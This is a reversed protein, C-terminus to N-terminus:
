RVRLRLACLDARGAGVATHISDVNPLSAGPMAPLRAENRVVDTLHMAWYPDLRVASKWSTQGGLVRVLDCGLSKMARAVAVGEALGMGGPAWDAVTVSVFLPKNAPWASRVEELIKLPFRLRNALPGGYGDRRRNTLPSIFGGLLYGAGMHLGLAAFGAREARKTAQLFDRCVEAMNGETMENPRVGSRAYAVPSAALLPWGKRRLPRDSGLHRPETAARAGAHGLHLAVPAASAKAVRENIASWAREQADDYLGASGSTIRGGPSPSVVDTVALGAGSVAAREIWELTQPGPRGELSRDDPPAVAVVRNALTLDRLGMPNFAPPPAVEHPGDSSLRDIRAVFAPDRLRLNDYDVRGSRTLLHFAFQEPAMHVYRHTNEFYTQSQRAAEQFIAVRPKRELEYDAFAGELSDSTELAQSLAIADEMALKTGSGISFHATHVADGLFVINDAHWRSCRLTPFTLWKSGNSMLSRGKLDDGFIAECRAISELEDSEDLGAAAWTEPSCEVIFTSTTGDFPYAHAQFMGHETSRFAFTFSDFTRDTGFWIYRSRGERVSPRLSAAFRDRFVSHVGDAAVVLDFEEIKAPEVEHDFRLEVSLSACRQQLIALLARRAIGSFVQGECRVVEGEVRVDIAEWMVFRDVIDLYSTYDAERFSTLTRDSFVVGWGYTADSPNKECLVVNHGPDSKKLLAAAYLGAPGGGVICIRM